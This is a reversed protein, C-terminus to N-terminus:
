ATRAASLLQSSTSGMGYRDVDSSLAAVEELIPRISVGATAGNVCLDRLTLLADRSDPGQDVISFHILHERFTEPSGVPRPLTAAWAFAKFTKFLQRIEARQRASVQGYERVIDLLLHQARPQVDARELPPALAKAEELWGPQTIDIPRNAIPKLKEDLERM